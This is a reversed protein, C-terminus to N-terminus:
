YRDLFLSLKEIIEKQNPIDSYFKPYTEQYFDEKPVDKMFHDKPVYYSSIKGDPDNTHRHFQLFRANKPIIVSQAALRSYPLFNRSSGHIISRHFLIVEGAKSSVPVMKQWIRRAISQKYFPNIGFPRITREFQHSGPLMWLQGNFRHSDVFSVWANISYDDPEKTINSDQHCIDSNFGFPKLILGVGHTETTETNLYNNLFSNLYRDVLDIAQKKLPNPTNISAIIQGEKVYKKLTPQVDRSQKRFELFSDPNISGLKVFGDKYLQEELTHYQVKLIM